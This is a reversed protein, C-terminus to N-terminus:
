SRPATFKRKARAFIAVGILFMLIMLIWNSRNVIPQRKALEDQRALELERQYKELSVVVANLRNRDSTFIKLSGGAKQNDALWNKAWNVEKHGSFVKARKWLAAIYGPKIKTGAIANQSQKRLAADTMQLLRDYEALSAKVRMLTDPHDKIVTNETGALANIDSRDSDLRALLYRTIETQIAWKREDLPQKDSLEFVKSFSDAALQGEYIRYAMRDLFVRFMLPTMPNEPEHQLAYELYWVANDFQLNDEYLTSSAKIFSALTPELGAAEGQDFAVKSTNGASRYDASIFQLLALLSAKRSQEDSDLTGDDVGNLTKIAKAIVSQYQDGYPPAAPDLKDLVEMATECSDPGSDNRPLPLTLMQSSSEVFRSYEYAETVKGTGYDIAGGVVFAFPPVNMSVATGAATILAGLGVDWYVSSSNGYFSEFTAQESAYAAPALM